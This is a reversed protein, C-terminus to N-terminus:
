VFVHSVRIVFLKELFASSVPFRGATKKEKKEKKQLSAPMLYPRIYGFSKLKNEPLNKLVLTFLLGMRGWCIVLFTELCSVLIRGKSVEQTPGEYKVDSEAASDEIIRSPHGM